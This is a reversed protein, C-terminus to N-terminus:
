HHGQQRLQNLRTIRRSLGRQSLGAWHARGLSLEILLTFLLSQNVLDDSFNTVAEIQLGHERGRHSFYLLM